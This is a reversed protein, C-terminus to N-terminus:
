RWTTALDSLDRASPQILTLKGRFCYQGRAHIHLLVLLHHVQLVGSEVFLNVDHLLGVVLVADLEVVSSGAEGDLGFPGLVNGGLFLGDFLGKALAVVAGKINEDNLAPARAAKAPTGVGFGGGAVGVFGDEVSTDDLGGSKGAALEFVFVLAQRCNMFGAVPETEIMRPFGM